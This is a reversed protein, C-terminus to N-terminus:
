ECCSHGEEAEVMGAASTIRSATAAYVNVATTLGFLSMLGALEFELERAGGVRYYDQGDYLVIQPVTRDYGVLELSDYLMQRKVDDNWKVETFPINNVTLSARVLDCYPCDDKSNMTVTVQM